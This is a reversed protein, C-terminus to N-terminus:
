AQEDLVRVTAQVFAELTRLRAMEGMRSSSSAPSCAASESCRSSTRMTRRLGRRAILHNGITLCGEAATQLRREAAEGEPRGGLRAAAVRHGTAQRRTRGANASGAPIGRQRLWAIDPGMRCATEALEPGERANRCRLLRGEKLVTRAVSASATRLNVLTVEGTHLVSVMHGYLDTDFCALREGHVAAEALYALDVDSVPTAEGRGMSGFLWVAALEDRRELRAPLRDLRAQIDAPLLQFQIWPADQWLVRLTAFPHRTARGPDQLAWERKQRYPRCRM